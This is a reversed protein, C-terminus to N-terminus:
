TLGGVVRLALYALPAVVLLSDIRDLLGGFGPLVTGADKVRASRKLLSELLDGWVAGLGVVLVLTLVVAVDLPAVLAVVGVGVLAGVGNGVLGAVTKGPSLVPALKRKGFLSGATFAGVDSVAVGLGLALVVISGGLSSLEWVLAVPVIVLAVALAGDGIRRPGNEVDQSVLPVVTLLLGAGIVVSLLDVGLAVLPVTSVALVLLLMRDVLMLRPRLSGFEATAVVGFAVLLAFMAPPWVAAAVWLPGLVAWTLWRRVLVSDALRRRRLTEVVTVAVGGAALVSGVALSGPLLIELPM